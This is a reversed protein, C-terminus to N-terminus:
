DLSERPLTHRRSTPKPPRVEDAQIAAVVDGWVVVEGLGKVDRVLGRERLWRAAESSRVPILAAAATVSLVAAPGLAARRLNLDASM